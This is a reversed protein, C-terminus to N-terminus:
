ISVLRSHTACITRVSQVADETFGSKPYACFLSFGQEAYYAQWLHELRVTDAKHGQAWLLAVM